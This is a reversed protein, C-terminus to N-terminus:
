HEIALFNIFIAVIRTLHILSMRCSDETNFSLKLLLTTYLFRIDDLDSENFKYCPDLYQYEKMLAVLIPTFYGCDMDHSNFKNSM